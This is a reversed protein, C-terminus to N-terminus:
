ANLTEKFWQCITKPLWDITIPMGGQVFGVHGGDHPYALQVSSHLGSPSRLSKAPVFPDNLPNLVLCPSRIAGLWPGCSSSAWYHEADNFGHLPATVYEDFAIFTRSQLVSAKDYLGPFRQLRELANPILSHLFYRMYMLNVGSALAYAGARLDQPACVAACADVLKSASEGQEGLWKLLANAGLSVGVAVLLGDHRSRFRRLIWDIEASDGSHYARPKRNPLGGCGRFHVVSGQWNLRLAEQMFALSYHSQSSGELGHFLVLQVSSSAPRRHARSTSLGEETQVIPVSTKQLVAAECTSMVEDVALVDDDPTQWINRQYNVVPKQSLRSATVTQVHANRAWWPARYGRLRVIAKETCSVRTPAITLAKTQTKSFLRQM